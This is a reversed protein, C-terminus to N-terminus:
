PEDPINQKAPSVHARGYPQHDIAARPRVLNRGRIRSPLCGAPIREYIESVILRDFYDYVTFRAMQFLYSSFSRVNKLKERDKWLSLFLDQAMDRSVEKDHTLGILFNVLRPQYQFFLHEFAEVNGAAIEKLKNQEEPLEM